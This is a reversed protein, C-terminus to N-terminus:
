GIPSKPYPSVVWMSVHSKLITTVHRISFTINGSECPRHVGFKAPHHSLILPGWRCLWTVCQDHPWTDLWFTKDGCECPWRGGFNALISFWCSSARVLFDCVNWYHPWTFFWFWWIEEIVPDNLRLLFAQTQWVNVCFHWCFTSILYITALKSIWKCLQRQSDLPKLIALLLWWLLEIFFTNKVSKCFRCSIM